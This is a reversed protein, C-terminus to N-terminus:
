GFGSFDNRDTAKDDIRFFSRDHEITLRNDQSGFLEVQQELECFMGATDIGTRFQQVLDPTVPILAVFVRDIGM